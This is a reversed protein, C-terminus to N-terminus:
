SKRMMLKMAASVIHHAKMGYKELLEEPKGSEGFCDKMGIFDMPVPYHRVVVEATASGLGGTIQHEEATLIAGTEKACAVIMKEDIPKITHVNIVRARINKEELMYAAQLAEWTLHGTSVITLDDGEHLLQAKGVSFKMKMSTFNPVPERGFRIYVPGKVQEGAALVALFAQNADCPSLVTMNPLARMVAIDELAQHTAGDPGVSIGAHAGGIIVHLNNYCVSVRIQDAARMTSFVGYTAFVPLKGSLALGAAVGACNQEAIGLSIFRDPFTDAFINMGVSKTIDAGIGILNGNRTGLELLGEGFGTKTAKDGKNIYTGM